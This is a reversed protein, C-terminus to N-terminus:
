YQWWFMLLMISKRIACFARVRLRRLIRVNGGVGRTWRLEFLGGDQVRFWWVYRLLQVYLVELRSDYYLFTECACEFLRAHFFGTIVKKM